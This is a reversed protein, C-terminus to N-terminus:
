EIIKELGHSDKISLKSGTPKRHLLRLRKQCLPCVVTGVDIEDVLKRKKPATEVLGGARGIGEPDWDKFLPKWYEAEKGRVKM